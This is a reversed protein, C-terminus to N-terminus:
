RLVRRVAAAIIQEVTGSEESLPRELYKASRGPDHRATMDEHVRVAYPTDYSVAATLQQEDVSAVGSRELTGEEIPVLQRSRQLVHEAAALLGRAAGAREARLVVDGTWTVRSRQPSM